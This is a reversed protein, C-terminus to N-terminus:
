KSLKENAFTHARKIADEYKTVDDGSAQAADPKGGGKGGCVAAVDKAWDGAGLKSTLSPGVSAIIWVKKEDKSFLMVASEPNKDRITQLCNSLGKRDGGLDFKQVIVKSNNSKEKTAVEEALALAVKLLDKKEDIVNGVLGQIQKSLKAKQGLPIPLTTIEANLISVEKELEAGKKSKAQEIKEQFLHGTAFAKKAADGTWAIIRRIGKAIGNESIIAFSRAEGATTLHTGGCFEISYNMWDPNEPKQLLEDVSKGISVVTVPDPYAEGFVARLGNIKRAQELAVSKRFVELKADIIDSCIKEIAIIEETTLPQNHSFDFRLKEDDVLSGKQDV